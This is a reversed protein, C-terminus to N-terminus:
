AGAWILPRVSGFRLLRLALRYYLNYWGLAYSGLRWGMNSTMGVWCMLGLKFNLFRLTSLSSDFGSNFVSGSITVLFCRLAFSYSGVPWGLLGWPWNTFRLTKDRLGIWRALWQCIDFNLVFSLCVCAFPFEFFPFVSLSTKIHLVICPKM